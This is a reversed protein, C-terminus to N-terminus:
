YGLWEYCERMTDIRDSQLVLVGGDIMSSMVAWIVGNVIQYEMSHSKLAKIIGENGM